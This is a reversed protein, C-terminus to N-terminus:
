KTNFYDKDVPNKESFIHLRIYGDEAGSAFSKGDPNFALTNIPGFHGAVTGLMDQNVVHYFMAEFKGQRTHTQTVNMAEEGGGIIVYPMIPSIVAANVPRDTKYVKVCELTRADYLRATTDKSSTIFMTKDKSFTMNNIGKSHDSARAIERATEVDWLRVTGDDSASIITDNLPGWYARNIKLEHGVFEQIPKDEIQDVDGGYLNYIFIKPVQGMAKDGVTLIQQDGLAFGVSRVPSLHNFTFLEEGTELNWLKATNDAAATLFLKSTFNTDCHWISGKHGNYTGLRQGTHAYWVTPKHDKSCSFLLDGERNYHLHTLPREHGKLLIPRM